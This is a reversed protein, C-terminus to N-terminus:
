TLDIAQKVIDENDKSYVIFYPNQLNEKNYILSQLGPFQKVECGAYVAVAHSAATDWEMTPGIRPYIDAAGEAIMCLKLSSGFSKMECEGTILQIKEIFDKTEDSLHSRSAVIQLKDGSKRGNIRSANAIIDDVLVSEGPIAKYSGEGKLGYYLINQVPVYVVGLVPIGSEVLAINITYEARKNIFEKTGDLPDILWFLNWASRESFSINANEESLQPINTPKLTECIIRDSELDAMTLPSDDSKTMVEVEDNYYQLTKKGAKIAAEITLKLNERM